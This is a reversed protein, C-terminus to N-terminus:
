THLIPQATPVCVFPGTHVPESTGVSQSQRLQMATGCPQGACIGAAVCITWRLQLTMTTVLSTDFDCGVAAHWVHLVGDVLFMHLAVGDHDFEVFRRITSADAANHSGFACFWFADIASTPVAM